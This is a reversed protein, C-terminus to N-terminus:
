SVVTVHGDSPVTFTQLDNDVGNVMVVYSSPGHLRVDYASPGDIMIESVPLWGFDIVVDGIKLDVVPITNANTMDNERETYIYVKADPHSM